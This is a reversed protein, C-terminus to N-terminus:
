PETPPRVEENRDDHPDTTRKKKREADMGMRIREREAQRARENEEFDSTYMLAIGSDTIEGDYLDFANEYFGRLRFRGDRTLDYLIAYQAARTNSVNSAQQQREDVGVSGGVEFSLREDMFRKSVKYDVSTRQYVENGATQDITNVGLEIDVGKVYRGTIKNLQDTLIGNVSSRAASSAIGSSPAGGAGEDQIFSNLVLLGFVQRNREEERNRDALRDLEDNVKPYSNRYMRPLDIGFSIDPKAMAGAVSIRVEFPLRTALRNREAESLAGSSNAVLPYAATESTYMAQIDLRADVPDGDWVVRSGPVLEFRKKVLGYFELTYGGRTATFPGSLYMRGEPVYQFRLDADGQFYAADGTTPDLVVHFLAGSDVLLHLDMDLKPLQARLSDRLREADTKERVTDIGALDTTFEVIGESSVMEVESGPLVVSFDTGPLIGLEGKVVPERDTGTIRVDASTFLDGYFAATKSAKANVLQFSDTRLLLDFELGGPDSTLVHGDLMFVSGLSDRAAFRHFHIGREDATIREDKLTYKAGTQDVGVVAQAFRVDGNLENVGNLRSYAISGHLGGSLEFLYGGVFPELFRMDAFDVRGNATIRPTEGAGDFSGAVQLTNAGNALDFQGTYTEEGEGHAKIVADGMPRGAVVLGDMGLDVHFPVTSTLPLVVEGTLAGKVLAVTDSTTVINLVSGIDFSKLGITTRDAATILEVSRERSRLLLDDAQVGASTFYMRNNGDAEWHATDLILGERVHATLVGDARTFELPVNYKVPEDVEQIRLESFLKGPASAATLSMGKISYAAYRVSDLGVVGDLGRGQADATFTFGNVHLSDYELLPLDVEIHMDEPTWAGEFTRLEITRLPPLLLDTLWDTRPLEVKLAAREPLRVDRLTDTSFFGLLRRQTWPVLSDVAANTRYELVVADSRLQVFTTDQQLGGELDFEDFVFAQDENSLRVSDGVIDFAISGDMSYSAEGRWAGSVVLPYRYLGLAAVDIAAVRLDFSGGVTDSKVPWRLHGAFDLDLAEAGTALGVHISDADLSAAVFARSLDQGLYSFSTTRVQIQGQRSGSNLREGDATLHLSIPGLATDGTSRPIMLSTVKLDAKVADPLGKGMGSASVMGSVNGLDSELDVDMDVASGSGRVHASGLFRTPLPTSAPAFASVVGRLGEGMRLEVLKVDFQTSPWKSAGRIWGHLDSRTGRDGDVKFSVNDLRDITGEVDIRASLREGAHLSVSPAIGSRDLTRQLTSMDITGSLAARIPIKEPHHYLTELDGIAAHAALEAVLDDVQVRGKAVDIFRPTANLALGARWRMDNATIANLDNLVLALRQDSVVIDKADLDVVRVVLHEPDALERPEAVVRQHLAISSRDMRLSALRIDLGRVWYRFGDHQGLWPPESGTTTSRTADRSLMAFHADDMVVSAVDVLQHSLDLANMRIRLLGMAIGMSDQTTADVFRLSSREVDLVDMSLDLGAFPDEIFPYPDAEAPGPTTSMSVHADALTLSALHFRLAAPDIGHARVDLRGVTTNMRLGSPHLDLHIRANRLLLGDMSFSSTSLSDASAAEDVEEGAFGRVIHDFNFLSDADQTIRVTVGELEVGALRVHGSLLPRVLLRGSIRDAHLLTDGNLQPLHLGSLEVRLPFGLYFGVLEVRSNTKEQLFSVARDRILDQVSRTYLLLLVLSALLFPGAALWALMRRLWRWTREGRGSTTDDPREAEM